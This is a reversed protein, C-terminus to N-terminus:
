VAIVHCPFTGKARLRQTRTEGLWERANALYRGAEDRGIANTAGRRKYSTALFMYLSWVGHQGSKHM